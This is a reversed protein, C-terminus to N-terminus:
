RGKRSNRRMWEQLQPSTFIKEPQTAKGKSKEKEGPLPDGPKYKKVPVFFQQIIIPKDSM